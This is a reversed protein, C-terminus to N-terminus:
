KKMRDWEFFPERMLVHRKYREIAHGIATLLIVLNTVYYYINEDVEINGQGLKAGVVKGYAGSVFMGVFVSFSFYAQSQSAIGIGIVYVSAFLLITECTPKHHELVLEYALPMTPLAIVFACAAFWRQRYYENARM